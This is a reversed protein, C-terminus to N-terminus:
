VSDSFNPPKLSDYIDLKNLGLYEDGDDDENVLEKNEVRKVMSKMMDLFNYEIM